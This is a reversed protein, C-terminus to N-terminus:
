FSAACPLITARMRSPRECIRGRRAYESRQAGQASQRDCLRHWEEERVPRERAILAATPSVTPVVSPPPTLAATAAAM